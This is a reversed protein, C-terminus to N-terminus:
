RDRQARYARLLALTWGFFYGACAGSVAQGAMAAGASSDPHMAAAVRQDAAISATM